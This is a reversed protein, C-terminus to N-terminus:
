PTKKLVKSLMTFKDTGQYQGSNSVSGQIVFNSATGSMLGIDVYETPISKLIDEFEVHNFLANFNGKIGNYVDIKDNLEGYVSSFSIGFENQDANIVIGNNFSTEEGLAKIRSITNLVDEKNITIYEKPLYPAKYFKMVDPFTGTLQRSCYKVSVIDDYKPYKIKTLGSILMSNNDTGIEFEDYDELLKLSKAMKSAEIMFTVPTSCLGEESTMMFTRKSTADIATATITPNGIVINVCNTIPTKQDPHIISNAKNIVEKFFNVPLEIMQVPTNTLINQKAVMPNTSEKIVVPKKNASFSILLEGTGEKITIYETKPISAIIGRFRKFNVSPAKGVSVINSCIVEVETTEITNTTYLICSGNNNSELSINDDGLNFGNTGVTPAVYDLAAMLSAQLITIEFM